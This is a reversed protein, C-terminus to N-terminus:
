NFVMNRRVFTPVDLDQGDRITPESKDFRGKSVIELPLQGQRMKSGSKRGRGAGGSQREALNAMEDESLDPKPAVYRSRPRPTARKELFETDLAMDSQPSAGHAKGRKAKSPEPEEFLEEGRRAAVLIVHLREGLTVDEAAGVCVRADGCRSNVAEMVRGVEAMTLKSGASIGVLVAGVGTLAQGGELLPHALLKEAAVAARSAGDADVAAFFAEQHADRLVACLDAFQVDMLGRRTILRWLGCVGDAIRENASRLTDAVTSDEGILKFVKQNPWCVVGDAFERLSDQAREAQRMRRAGEFEFPLAVFGIALAGCEKAARALVPAAGGGAGGGLGAFIFVVQAGECLSKLRGFQKEALERGREPDGGTGLGAFAKGELSLQETAASAALSAPDTNVAICTADPLARAAIADLMAVGANGVGFFRISLPTSSENNM